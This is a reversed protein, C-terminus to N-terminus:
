NKSGSQEEATSTDFYEFMEMQKVDSASSRQDLKSFVIKGDQLALRFREPSGVFSFILGPGQATAILSTAPIQVQFETSKVKKLDNLTVFEETELPSNRSPVSTEILVKGDGFGGREDRKSKSTEEVQAWDISFATALGMLVELVDALESARESQDSARVLEELEEFLKGSLGLGIDGKSLKAERVAEGGAIINSPIKDRVIKGFIQKKRKRYYKPENSLIVPIQEQSLRYYTHGLISGELQVPLGRAKAVEIVKEIFNEDRILSAEPSLKITFPSQPLRDLADPTSVLFPRLKEQQRPAPDCIERSRFWPLNKGVSYAEPVGCFWMIQANEKLKDAIGRTRTAIELKDPRTLVSSRASRSKISQYNWSGDELQTLFKPKYTSKTKVVSNLLVNVEYTDVPLVQMGDPLGWLADVIVIRDGPKAYAWASARAPLFAHFLFVFGDGEVGKEQFDSIVDLCWTLATAASATDTRPLNLDKIGDQVCDTRVVLRNGTLAIIDEIVEERTGVNSECELVLSPSLPYIRPGLNKNNFDFDSLNKLKPWRTTTGIEYASFRVEHSLNLAPPPGINLDRKPDFGSDRESWEFDIQVLWLTENNVIWEIHCRERFREALFYAVSRLPQYPIRNGCRLSHAPDPATTFKSNIGKAPIWDPKDIEYSWQNKTPSVRRENSLHGSFAAEKYSQVIIGIKDTPDKEKAHDFIEIIADRLHEKKNDKPLVKSQFKGRDQISENAGSSRVIFREQKHENMWEYVAKFHKSHEVSCGKLWLEYLAVPAARFDPKWPMPLFALGAAKSGYEQCIKMFTSYDNTDPPDRSLIM